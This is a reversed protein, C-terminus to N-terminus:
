RRLNDIVFEAIKKVAGCPDAQWPGAEPKERTNTKIHVLTSDDVGLALRCAKPGKDRRSPINEEVDVIVAPYGNITVEEWHNGTDRGQARDSYLTSISERIPPFWSTTVDVSPGFVILCQGERTQEHRGDGFGISQLQDVTIAACPDAVFKAGNLPAPIPPVLVSPGPPPAPPNTGCGALLALGGAILTALGRTLRRNM